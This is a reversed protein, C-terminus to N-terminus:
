VKGVEALRNTLFRLGTRFGSQWGSEWTDLGDCQCCKGMTERDGDAHEQWDAILQELMEKLGLIKGAEVSAHLLDVKDVPRANWEANALEQSVFGRTKIGCRSSRVYYAASGDSLHLTMPEADCRCWPIPCAKLESM